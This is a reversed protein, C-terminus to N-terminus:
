HGAKEAVRSDVRLFDKSVVMSDVRPAVWRAVLVGAKQGARLSARWDATAAASQVAMLVAKAVATLAARM